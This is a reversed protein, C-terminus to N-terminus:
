LGIHENKNEQPKRMDSRTNRNGYYNWQIKDDYTEGKYSAKVEIENIGEKLEINEFIYHVHTTGKKYNKVEVGNVFLQPVGINSYVTVPTIKNERETARRQTLYLVSDKSWNAKYWYFPDKKLKRDFTVLGKMNRAEVGGQSSAPTAFDFTNWLYSALLYPHNAIYGWQIEHFRTAFTENYQKDFGCCDGVDGVVEQQHYINAETGYEALMIKYDPYEKEMGEIWPEMDQIKKEYWGFYRNIGQIDANMNVGHGPDGYGNVSVTYRYPDESKALDHLETTLSATYNIPTYVENHLGWTYISPHNYNQRILETMQQKANDAEKTSVRNVFPIEAWIMFGISDCKSYFYESQQYHALRITTAGIEKIIALDADHQENTLASGLQWWDQHRCVGYMPVKKGNLYMGDGAKLEFHRLGLPQIVEDIVTGNSIIQTVVKYLYPDELGQWLHPNTITFDQNYFQRGQPLVNIATEKKLKLKGDMDYISTLLQVRKVERNKNEIKIEVNVDASKNTVNKQSIYIGPSAYDTVAINVKETIILHVPRYMGGYVGFLTHNIPVVDPRSSNDVKLLIENDEGFKLLKSIEITFASYGGKHNGAFTGNVYLEAVSAVGEFNLFIRKDKMSADPRYTKKYFAEGAYFNNKDNQMDIANWTHPITVDQWRQDFGSQFLIQDTPFPGKKFLWGENFSKVDRAFGGVVLSFSLLLGALLRM